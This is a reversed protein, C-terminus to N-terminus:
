EGLHTKRPPRAFDEFSKVFDALKGPRVTSVRPDAIVSM